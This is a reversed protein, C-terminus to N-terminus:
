GRLGWQAALWDYYVWATSGLMTWIRVEKNLIQTSMACDCIHWAEKVHFTSVIISLLIHGNTCGNCIQLWPNPCKVLYVDHWIPELTTSSCSSVVYVLICFSSEEVKFINPLFTLSLFHNDFTGNMFSKVLLWCTAEISLYQSYM